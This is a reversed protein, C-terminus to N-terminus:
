FRSESGLPIKKFDDIVAAYNSESGYGADAVIYKFLDLSHMDSLFPVLTRTDTPNSFIGYNLVFQGNTAVQLNYGPKLQGNVMSDEKMRMFTADHDTKSFSNRGNFISEAEEYKKARPLYDKEM